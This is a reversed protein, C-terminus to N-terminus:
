ASWYCLLGREKKEYHTSEMGQHSNLFDKKFFFDKISHLWYTPPAICCCRWTWEENQNLYKGEQKNFIVFGELVSCVEKKNREWV